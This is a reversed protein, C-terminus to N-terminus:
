KESAHLKPHISMEWPYNWQIPFNVLSKRRSTDLQHTSFIMTNQVDYPKCANSITQRCNRWKASFKWTSSFISPQILSALRLVIFSFRKEIPVQCDNNRITTATAIRKTKRVCLLTRVGRKLQLWNAREVININNENGIFDFIFRTM